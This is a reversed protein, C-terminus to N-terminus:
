SEQKAIRTSRRPNKWSIRRSRRLGVGRATWNSRRRKHPVRQEEFQPTQRNQTELLRDHQETLKELLSLSRKKLQLEKHPIHALSLISNLVHLIRTCRIAEVEFGAFEELTQLKDSVARLDEGTPHKRTNLLTSQVLYRFYWLQRSGHNRPDTPTSGSTTWAMSTLSESDDTAM